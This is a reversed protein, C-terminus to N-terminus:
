IEFQAQIEAQKLKENIEFYINGHCKPCEGLQKIKNRIDENKLIGISGFKSSYDMLKAVHAITEGGEMLYLAMCKEYDGFKNRDDLVSKSNAIKAHLEQYRKLYEKPNDFYETIMKKVNEDKNYRDFITRCATELHTASEQIQKIIINYKDLKSPTQTPKPESVKKEVMEKGNVRINGLQDEEIINKKNSVIDWKREIFDTAVVSKSYKRKYDDPLNQYIWSENNEKILGIERFTKVLYNGINEFEIDLLKYEIMRTLIDCGRKTYQKLTNNEWKQWDVSLQDLFEKWQNKLFVKDDDTM